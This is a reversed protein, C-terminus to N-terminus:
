WAGGEVTEDSVGTSISVFRFSSDGSGGAFALASGLPTLYRGELVAEVEIPRFRVHAEREEFVGPEGAPLRHVYTTTQAEGFRASVVLRLGDGSLAPSAAVAAKHLGAATAEAPRDAAVRCAAHAADELAMHLFVARGVDVVAFLFALLIPLALVFAVVSSGREAPRGVEHSAM